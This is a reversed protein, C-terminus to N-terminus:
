AKAFNEKSEKIRDDELPRFREANFGREPYPPMDSCPNAIGVLTVAVEGAEGKWNVGLQVDRIVYTVGAVPLLDYFRWIDEPFKDDICVVKQGTMM